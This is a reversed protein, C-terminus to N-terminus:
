RSGRKLLSPLVAEHYYALEEDNLHDVVEAGYQQIKEHVARSLLELERDVHDQYKDTM